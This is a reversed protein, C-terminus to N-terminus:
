KKKDAETLMTEKSICQYTHALINLSLICKILKAFQKDEIENNSLSIEIDKGSSDQVGKWDKVQYKITQRYLKQLLTLLQAQKNAPMAKTIELRENETKAEPLKEDLLLMELRILELKEGQDITANEIFFSLEGKIIDVWGTWSEKLVIAM